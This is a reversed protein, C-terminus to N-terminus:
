RSEKALEILMDLERVTRDASGNFGVKKFRIKGQADIIYKQPIGENAVNYLDIVDFHDPRERNKTDLLVHFTYPTTALYNKVVEERNSETQWTNIFLFAVKDDAKYKDVAKQMGPFSAICPGCWTAWYDLIVVKGKYQDLSVTEGKLNVLKFSPAPVDVMEKILKAKEKEMAVKDLSAYYAEFSSNGKYALELEKKLEDSGFGEKVFREGFILVEDSKGNKALFQVYRLNIDASSYNNKKVAIEQYKLAEAPKGNLDMLVAYTDAYTGYTNDLSKEYQARSSYFPPVPDSKAEVLLDLSEKSLAAAFAVNEKKEAYSWAYNNFFSARSTKNPIQDAYEKIKKTDGLPIYAAALSNYLSSLLGRDSEKAADLPYNILFEAAKKEKLAPDKEIIVQNFATNLANTGKPYKKAILQLVSDAGAKNKMLNFMSVMRLYDVEKLDSWTNMERMVERTLQDGNAKDVAIKLSLYPLIQTRRLSPDTAYAKEFAALAKERDAKVGALATGMGKYFQGEWFHASATPQGNKYFLTYYGKPHRDYEGEASFSFVAIATSDEPTFDGKFVKGEKQLMIELMRQRDNVFYYVTCHITSKGDLKGGTPDYSFALPKGAEPQSTSLLLQQANLSFNALLLGIIGPIRKM